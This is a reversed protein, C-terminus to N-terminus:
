FDPPGAPAPAIWSQHALTDTERALDRDPDILVAHRRGNFSVSSRAYIRVPGLNRAAYDDAVFHAFQLIMDPQTSVMRLQSPTLRDRAEVDTRAGSADEVVVELDGTKETLMVKWSFRFGEESWLTNGPYLHSRLPLLVQVLAYAALAALAVPGLEAPTPAPKTARRRPWAPDFFVPTFAIMMWPFMGIRFLLSTTVHFVVLVAYAPIRSRRWSLFGVITLDFLFGAWSFALATGRAHLLRGLVPLETNAALWIRLPQGYELWDSGIKGIAGYVYVVGLQFRVLWLAWTPVSGPTGRLAAYRDLPLVTGLAALLTYLYYHNLYNTKDCFHAYGFTIALVACAARTWVGLAVLVAAVFIVAYHVHMWPAPWPRVWSFGWYPFFYRPEAYYKEIWHHTFFRSAAVAGLVGLAIRFLGLSASDVPRSLRKAIGTVGFVM